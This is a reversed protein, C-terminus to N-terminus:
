HYQYDSLNFLTGGTKHLTKLERVCSHLTHLSHFLSVYTNRV